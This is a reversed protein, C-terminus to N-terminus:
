LIFSLRFQADIADNGHLCVALQIFHYLDRNSGPHPPFLACLDVFGGLIRAGLWHKM